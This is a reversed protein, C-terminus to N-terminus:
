CCSYFSSSPKGGVAEGEGNENFIGLKLDSGMQVNGIDKVRLPIGNNNSVSINEVDERNKIYGM